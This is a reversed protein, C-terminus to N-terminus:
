HPHRAFWDQTLGNNTYPVNGVPKRTSKGWKGEYITRNDSYKTRLFSSSWKEKGHGHKVSVNATVAMKFGADTARRCYDDDEWGYGTFREDLLGIKEIVSRRILTCIFALRIPTYTLPSVCGSQITNGVGGIIRPSILGIDPYTDLINEMAQVTNDGLFTCDDNMLLINGSTQNIGLNCNRSYIFPGDPAQITTWGSPDIIDHGDRILIKPTTPAFQDVSVRCSEFIDPYKSPVIITTMGRWFSFGGQIPM